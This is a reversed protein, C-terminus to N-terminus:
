GGTIVATVIAVGIAIIPITVIVLWRVFSMAGELKLQTTNLSSVTGNLEKLHSEINDVKEAIVALTADDVQM